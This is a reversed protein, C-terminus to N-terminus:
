QLRPIVVECTMLLSLRTVRHWKADMERCLRRGMKHLVRGLNDVGENKAAWM